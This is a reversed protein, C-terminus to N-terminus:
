RRNGRPGDPWDLCELMEESLWGLAYQALNREPSPRGREVELASAPAWLKRHLYDLTAGASRQTLFLAVQRGLGIKDEESLQAEAKGYLSFMDDLVEITSTRRTPIDERLFGRGGELHRRIDAALSALDDAPEDVELFQSRLRVLREDVSPHRNVDSGPLQDELMGATQLFVEAGIPAWCQSEQEVALVQRYLKLGVRDAEHEREWGDQLADLVVTEVQVPETVQERQDVFALVHGLEHCLGFRTAHHAMTLELETVSADSRGHIPKRARSTAWDVLVALEMLAGAASHLDPDGASADRHTGPLSATMRSVAACVSMLASSLGANFVIVMGDGTPVTLANITSSGREEVVLGAPGLSTIASTVDPLAALLEQLVPALMSGSVLQAVLHAPVGKDLLGAIKDQTM